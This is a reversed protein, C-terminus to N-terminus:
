DMRQRLRRQIRDENIERVLHDRLMTTLTGMIGTRDETKMHSNEPDLQNLLNRMLAYSHSSAGSLLVDDIGNAVFFHDLVECYGEWWPSKGDFPALSGVTASM